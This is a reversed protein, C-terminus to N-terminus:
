INKPLNLTVYNSSKCGTQEMYFQYVNVATLPSPHIGDYLFKGRNPGNHAEAKLYFWGNRKLYDYLNIKTFSGNQCITGIIDNMYKVDTVTVNASGEHAVLTERSVPYVDAYYLKCNSDIGKLTM